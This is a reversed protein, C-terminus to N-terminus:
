SMKIIKDLTQMLLLWVVESELMLLYYIFFLAHALLHCLTLSFPVLRTIVLYFRILRMLLSKYVRLNMWSNHLCCNCAICKHNPSIVLRCVNKVEEKRWRMSQIYEFSSFSVCYAVTHDDDISIVTIISLSIHLSAQSLLM